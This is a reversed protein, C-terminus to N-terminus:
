DDSHREEPKRFWVRRRCDEIFRSNEGSIDLEKLYEYFTDGSWRRLWLFWGEPLPNQDAARYGDLVFNATEHICRFDKLAAYAGAPGCLKGHLKTIGQVNDASDGMLMQCWFFMHGRGVIKLAGATTYKEALWGIPEPGEIIGLDQRWYPYPTMMLDKDDSWIVGDEKLLHAQAIMADDAEVDAHMRVEFEPLWNQRQTMAQRLPELLSPKNKGKRQGQYPKVGIINGRGAKRSKSCTLHVTCDQSKTLFMETLIAQQYKRIATDLRKVTAAVRYAPGDGDLILTRGAVCGKFQDGLTSVDVGRIIM